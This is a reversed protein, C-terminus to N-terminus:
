VSSDEFDAGKEWLKGLRREECYDMEHHMAAGIIPGFRSNWPGPNKPLRSEKKHRKKLGEEPWKNSVNQVVSNM